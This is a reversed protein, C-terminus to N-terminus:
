TTNRGELLRRKKPLEVNAKVRDVITEGM